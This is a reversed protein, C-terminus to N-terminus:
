KYAQPFYLVNPGGSAKGVSVEDLFVELQDASAKHLRFSLSIPGSVDGLAFWKQAWTGQTALPVSYSTMGASSTVDLFFTDGAGTAAPVAYLFSVVPRYTGAPITIGSQGITANGAVGAQGLRASKAGSHAWTSVSVQGSPVWWGDFDDGGDFGWNQVPNYVPPLAFSYSLSRTIELSRAPITGYGEASAIASYTGPPAALRFNGSIDSITALSSLAVRAGVLSIGRNDMVKGTLFVPTTTHADGDGGPWPEIAGQLEKLRSRFYYTQGEQVAVPSSPGFTSSTASTGTLWNTWSGNAGAKFQIDFVAQTGANDLRAWSVTFSLGPATAPLPRALSSLTNFYPEVLLYPKGGVVFRGSPDRNNTARPLTLRYYDGAPNVNTVAGNQDVLRAITSVAPISVQVDNSGTAWVVTVRGQPTGEAVIMEYGSGASRTVGTPRSLYTAAVQYAKYSPRTTGSNAALGYYDAPALGDDWLQFISMRQVDAAIAYSYAQIVFSAQEDLTARWTDSSSCTTAWEACVPIGTENVWVPKTLGLTAQMQSRARQAWSYIYSPDIYPHWPLADFFFGGGRGDPDSAAHDLVDQLFLQTSWYSLGAFLVTAQPDAAKVAQYGAKLLQYYDAASGSWFISFDPENWMEWVKVKNKYRLVTNYVFQGWYNSPDNWALYLNRPPAIATSLRVGSPTVLPRFSREGVRPFPAAPDGSTAAWSPSFMLIIHPQLGKALDLDIVADQEAYNRNGPSTEVDSWYLPWRTWRAGAEAAQRYRLAVTSSGLKNVEVSNVFNIGFRDDVGVAALGGPNLVSGLPGGAAM